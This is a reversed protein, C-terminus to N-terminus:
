DSWVTAQACLTRLQPPTVRIADSMAYTMVACPTIYEIYTVFNSLLITFKDGLQHTYLIDKM